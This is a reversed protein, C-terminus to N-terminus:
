EGYESNDIGILNLTNLGIHIYLILWDFGSSHCKLNWVNVKHNKIEEALLEVKTKAVCLKCRGLRAQCNNCHMESLESEFQGMEVKFRQQFLKWKELEDKNMKTVSDMTPAPHSILVLTGGLRAYDCLEVGPVKGLLIPWTVGGMISNWSLLLSNYKLSWIYILCFM